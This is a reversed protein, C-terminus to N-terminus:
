GNLSMSSSYNVLTQKEKDTASDAVDYVTEFPEKERCTKPITAVTSVLRGQCGRFKLSDVQLM